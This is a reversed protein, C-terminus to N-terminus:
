ILSETWVDVKNDCEWCMSVGNLPLTPVIKKLASEYDHLLSDYLERTFELNTKAFINVRYGALKERLINAGVKHLLASALRTANKCIFLEISCLIQVDACVLNDIETFSDNDNISEFGVPYIAFGDVRDFDLERFLKKIETSGDGCICECLDNCRNGCESQEFRNCSLRKLSFPTDDQSELAVLLGRTKTTDIAYDFDVFNLLNATLTVPDTSEDLIENTDLDYIVAKVTVSQTPYIAVGGIRTTVYRSNDTTLIFGVNKKPIVEPDINRIIRADESKYIESGFKLRNRDQLLVSLVDDKLSLIAGSLAKRFVELYTGRESDTIHTLLETSIGPLDNIFLKCDGTNHCGYVGILSDFCTNVECNDMGEVTKIQLFLLRM